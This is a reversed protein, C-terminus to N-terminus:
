IYRRERSDDEKKKFFFLLFTTTFFVKRIAKKRGKRGEVKKLCNHRYLSYVSYERGQDQYVANCTYKKLLFHAGGASVTLWYGPSNIQMRPHTRIDVGARLQPLM